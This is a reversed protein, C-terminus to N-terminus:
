LRFTIPLSMKVPVVQGKDKGPKFRAQKVLRVAEEDCGAGIGRVVVPDVVRGTEDVVFQVIVRGEIGAKRAIEPYRLQRELVQLGGILEPMEEVRVFVEPEQAKSSVGRMAVPEVRIARHSDAPRTSPPDQVASGEPLRRDTDRDKGSPEGPYPPVSVAPTSESFAPLSTPDAVQAAVDITALIQNTFTGAIRDILAKALADTEQLETRANRLRIVEQPVSVNRANLDHQAQVRDGLYEIHDGIEEAIAHNVVVEGTQVDVVRIAGSLKITVGAEYKNATATHESTEKRTKKRGEDDVYPVSYTYKYRFTVPTRELRDHDVYVQNLKGYIIYDVGELHPQPASVDALWSESIQQERLLVSLQERDMLRVFPSAQQLTKTKINEFIYDGLDMGLGLDRGTTNELREFAVNLTACAKAAAQKEQLISSTNGLERAKVYDDYANRCYGTELFYDGLGEYIAAAQQLADRYTSIHELAKQYTDAALRYQGSEAAVQAMRYYSEAIKQKSDRFPNTLELAAEYAKIAQQYRGDSFLGEARTYHQEAAGSRVSAIAEEVNIPVFQLANHRRLRELYRQLQEYEKLATELNGQDRYGEALSLKEEYAPHAVVALRSAAEAHGPKKNLAALYYLAARYLQRAEKAEDGQKITKQVGSCGVLTSLALMTVFAVWRNRAFFHPRM